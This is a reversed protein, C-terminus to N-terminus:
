NKAHIQEFARIFEAAIEPSDLLVLNEYNEKSATTTFNYSGTLV